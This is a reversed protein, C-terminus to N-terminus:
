TYQSSLFYMAIVAKDGTVVSKKFIQSLYAHVDKPLEETHLSILIYLNIPTPIGSCSILLNWACMWHHVRPVKLEDSWTTKNSRASRSWALVFYFDCPARQNTYEEFQIAQRRPTETWTALNLVKRIAHHIKFIQSAFVAYYINRALRRSTTTTKGSLVLKLPRRSQLLCLWFVCLSFDNSAWGLGWPWGGFFGNTLHTQSPDKVPQSSM